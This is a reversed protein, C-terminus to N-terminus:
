YPGRQEGQRHKRAGIALNRLSATMPWRRHLWYLAPLLAAVVIHSSIEVALARDWGIAHGRRAEDAIESYSRALVRLALLAAWGAVLRWHRAMLAGEALRDAADLLARPRPRKGGHRYPRAAPRAAHREEPWAQSRGAGRRLAAARHPRGVPDHGAVAAQDQQAPHAQRRGGM